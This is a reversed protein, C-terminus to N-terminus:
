RLDDVRILRGGRGLRAPGAPVELLLRGQAVRPAEVQAALDGIRALQGVLVEAQGVHDEGVAGPEVDVMCVRLVGRGLDGGREVDDAPVLGALVCGDGGDIVAFWAVAEASLQRTHLAVVSRSLRRWRSAEVNSRITARTVGFATLQSVSLLGEQARALDHLASARTAAQTM